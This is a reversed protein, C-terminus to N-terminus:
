PPYVLSDRVAKIINKITDIVSRAAIQESSVLPIVTYEEPWPGKAVM